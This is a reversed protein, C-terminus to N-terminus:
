TIYMYIALEYYIDSEEMRGELHVGEKQGVWLSEPFDGCIYTLKSPVLLLM